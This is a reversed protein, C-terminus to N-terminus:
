QGAFCSSDQCFSLAGFDGHIIIYHIANTLSTFNRVHGAEETLNKATRKHLPAVGHVLSVRTPLQLREHHIPVM